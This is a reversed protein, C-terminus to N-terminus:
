PTSAYLRSRESTGLGAIQPFISWIWHSTKQGNALERIVQPYVPDQATVFRDLDSAM